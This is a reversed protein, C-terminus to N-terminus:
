HAYKGKRIDALRARAMELEKEMQMIRAQADLEKARALANTEPAEDVSKEEPAMSDEVIQLLKETAANLAKGTSRLKSQNQSSPDARVAAAAILQATHASVAKVAAMVKERVIKGKLAQNALECTDITATVVAKAASVLGESWTGDNSYMQDPSASRMTRLKASIERQTATAAKIIQAATAAVAKTSELIQQDYSVSSFAFEVDEPMKGKITGKVTGRVTGKMGRVTGLGAPAGKVTGIVPKSPLEIAALKKSANEITGVAALLEKEALVSPDAQDVYGTPVLISASDIVNNIKRTIEKSSTQIASKTEATNSHIANKTKSLMHTTALALERLAGFMDTKKEDPAQDTAARGLRVVELFQKRFANSSEVLQDHADPKVDGAINVFDSLNNMLLKAASVVESPLATGVAISSDALSKVAKDVDKLVTDVARIVRENEGGGEILKLFEGLNMVLAKATEKLQATEYSENKSNLTGITGTASVSMPKGCARLAANILKSCLEGINKASTLFQEQQGSDASGIVAAAKKVVDKYEYFSMLAVEAADALEDQYGSAAAHCLMKFQALVERTASDLPEKYNSFVDNINGSDLQGSQAMSILSDIELIVEEIKKVAAECVITGRSGEKVTKILKTIQSSIEKTSATVKQRDTSSLGTADPSSNDLTSNKFIELLKVTSNGLDRCTAMLNKKIKVDPTMSAACRADSTAAAFYEAFKGALPAFVEPSEKVSKNVDTILDVFHKGLDFLNEAYTQYSDGPVEEQEEITDPNVIRLTTQISEVAKNIENKIPSRGELKENLSALKSEVELRKIEIQGHIDTAHPNGGSSKCSSLFENLAGILAKVDELINRQRSSENITAALNSATTVLPAIMVTFQPLITAFNTVEGTISNPQGKAADSLMPIISDIAKINSYLADRYVHENAADQLVFRNCEIDFLATEIENTLIAIKDLAENAEQQGPINSSLLDVIKQYSEPVKQLKRSLVQLSAPDTRGAFFPKLAGLADQSLKLLNKNAELIPAITQMAVPSISAPISAFEPTNAFDTLEKLGAQLQQSNQFCADRSEDSSTAALTKIANVLNATATAINKAYQLFQPKNVSSVKPHQATDRCVACIASTHKAVTSAANLIDAQSASVDSLTDTAVKIEDVYNLINEINLVGPAAPISTSDQIGILYAARTTALAAEEVTKAAELASEGVEQGKQEKAASELKGFVHVTKQSSDQIKQLCTHFDDGSHFTSDNLNDIHGATHILLQEGQTCEPLGASNASVIDVLKSISDSLNKSATGLPGRGITSQSSEAGSNKVVRLAKMSYNGIYKFQSVLQNKLSEDDITAATTQVCNALKIFNDQYQQVSTQMQMFNGTRCNQILSNCSNMLASAAGQLKSQLVQKSENAAAQIKPGNEFLDVSATIVQIANEIEKQGPLQSTIHSLCESLQQSEAQLKLQIPEAADQDTVGALGKVHKVMETVLGVVQGADSTLKVPDDCFVCCQIVANNWAQLASVTERVTVPILKDNLQNAATVMQANSALLQKQNSLVEQAIADLTQDPKLKITGRITGTSALKQNEKVQSKMLDLSSMAQVVEAQTSATEAQEAIGELVGLDDEVQQICTLLQTQAAEDGTSSAAAKAADVLQHVPIIAQKSSQIIGAQANLDKPDKIFDKSTTVLKNLSDAAQKASQNLNAQSQQDRNSAAIGKAASVLQTTSAALSKANKVLKTLIKHRAKEGASEVAADQVENVIMRLKELKTEDEPNRSADKAVSVLKSLSEAM